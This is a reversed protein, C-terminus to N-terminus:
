EVLEVFPMGFLFGLFSAFFPTHKHIYIYTYLPNDLTIHLIYLLIYIYTYPPCGARGALCAPGIKRFPSGPDLWGARRGRVGKQVMQGAPKAPRAPQYVHNGYAM